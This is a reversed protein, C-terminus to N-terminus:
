ASTGAFVVCANRDVEVPVADLAAGKCPGDICKGDDFRFLASHHACMLVQSRYCSVSGPVFDLSVSFHPCRNVYAWAKDGRRVVVISPGVSEKPVVLAGGDPVEDLRCLQSGNM